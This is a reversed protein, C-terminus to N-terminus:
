YLEARLNANIQLLDLISLYRLSNSSAFAHQNRCPIVFVGTSAMTRSEAFVSGILFKANHIWRWVRILKRLPVFFIYVFPAAVNEFNAQLIWPLIRMLQRDQSRSTARVEPIEASRM